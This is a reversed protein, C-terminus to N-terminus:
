NSFETNEVTKKEESHWEFAKLIRKKERVFYVLKETRRSVM